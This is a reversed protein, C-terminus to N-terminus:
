NIKKLQGFLLLYHKQISEIRLVLINKIKVNNKVNNGFFNRRSTEHSKNIFSIVPYCLVMGIANYLEKRETTGLLGALHGGASFGILIIKKFRSSIIKIAQLGQNYSAPYCHPYVSYFLIASSYGLSFYKKATPFGERKSIYSYAGGPIILYLIESKYIEGKKAMIKNAKDKNEYIVLSGGEKLKITEKYKKFNLNINSTKDFIIKYGLKGQYFLFLLIFIKYFIFNYNLYFNHKEKKNNNIAKDENM